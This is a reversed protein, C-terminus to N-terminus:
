MLESHTQGFSLSQGGVRSSTQPLSPLVYPLSQSNRTSAQIFPSSVVTALRPGQPLHEDGAINNRTKKKRIWLYFTSLATWQILRQGTAPKIPRGLM